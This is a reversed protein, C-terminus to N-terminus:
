SLKIANSPLYYIFTPALVKVVNKSKASGKLETERINSVTENNPAELNVNEQMIDEHTLVVINKEVKDENVGEGKTEDITVKQETSIVTKM